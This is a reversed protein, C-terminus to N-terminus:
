PSPCPDGGPPQYTRYTWCIQLKPYQRHQRPAPSLTQRQPSPPKAPTHEIPRRERWFNSLYAALSPAPSPYRPRLTNLRAQGQQTSANGLTDASYYWLQRNTKRRPSTDSNTSSCSKPDHARFPTPTRTEGEGCKVRRLSLQSRVKSQLGVWCFRSRRHPQVPPTDYRPRYAPNSWSGGIPCQHEM